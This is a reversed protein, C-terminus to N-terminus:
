AADAALSPPSPKGFVCAPITACEVDATAARQAFTTRDGIPIETM